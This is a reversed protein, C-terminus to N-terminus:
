LKNPLQRPNSPDKVTPGKFLAVVGMESVGTKVKSGLKLRASLFNRSDHVEQFSLDILNCLLHNM